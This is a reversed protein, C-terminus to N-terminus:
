LVLYVPLLIMMVRHEEINKMFASVKSNILVVTQKRDHVWQLM